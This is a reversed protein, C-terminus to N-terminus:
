YGDTLDTRGEARGNQMKCEASPHAARPLRVLIFVRGRALRGTEYWGLAFDAFGQPDGM